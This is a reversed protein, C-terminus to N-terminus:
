ENGSRQEENTTNDDIGDATEAPLVDAEERTELFTRSIFFRSYEVYAWPMYIAMTIITLIYQGLILLYGGATDGVKFRAVETGNETIVLRNMFYKYMNIFAAPAYFGITLVTLVIQGALFLVANEINVDLAIKKNKYSFNLFWNIFFAKFVAFLGIIAMFVFVILLVFIDNSVAAISTIILIFALFIAATVCVAYYGFLTAGKSKFVFGEDDGFKTNEAIYKIIHAYMWPLYIGFTAVSIASYLVINKFLENFNGTYSFKKDDLSLSEIFFCVAKCFTLASLIYVAAKQIITIGFNVAIYPKLNLLMNIIGSEIDLQDAMSSSIFYKTLTHSIYNSIGVSFIIAIICFFWYTIWGDVSFDTKFKKIM